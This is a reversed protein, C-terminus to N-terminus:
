FQGCINFSAWNTLTLALWTLVFFPVKSFALKESKWLMYYCTVHLMYCLIYCTVYYCLMIVHLM